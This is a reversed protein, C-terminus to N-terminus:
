RAKHLLDDPFGDAGRAQDQVTLDAKGGAEDFVSNFSDMLTANTINVGLVVAVGLSIGLATLATRTKHGSMSRLALKITIWVRRWTRM